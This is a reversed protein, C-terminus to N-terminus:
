EQPHGTGPASEDQHRTLILHYWWHKLFNESVEQIEDLFAGKKPFVSVTIM